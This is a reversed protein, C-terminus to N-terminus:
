LSKPQVPERLGGGAGHGDAAASNKQIEHVRVVMLDEERAREVGQGPQVAGEAASQPHHVIEQM